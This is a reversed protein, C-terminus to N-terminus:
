ALGVHLLLQAKLGWQEESLQKEGPVLFYDYYQECVTCLERELPNHEMIFEQAVSFVPFM